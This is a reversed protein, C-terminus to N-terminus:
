LAEMLLTTEILKCLEQPDADPAFWLGQNRGRAMRLLAALSPPFPARDCMHGTMANLRALKHSVSSQVLAFEYDEMVMLDLAGDARVLLLPVFIGSLSLNGHALLKKTEREWRLHLMVPAFGSLAKASARYEFRQRPHWIKKKAMM